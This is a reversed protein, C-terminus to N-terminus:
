RLPPIHTHPRTALLWNSPRKCAFVTEGNSQVKPVQCRTDGCSHTLFRVADQLIDRLYDVSDILGEETMQCLEDYRVLDALSGRIKELVLNKGQETSVDIITRLISHIHSPNGTQDQFEKRCWAWDIKHSPEEKSYIICKMWLDIVAEWSRQIVPAASKRLIKEAEEYSVDCQLAVKSKAVDNLIWKRLRRLGCCTTQNCSQTCFYHPPSEAVLALLKHVNSHNEVSDGHLEENGETRRFSAGEKNQKEAFGRHLVLRSDNGRLGLNILCDLSVFHFRSESSCLTSPDNIRVKTHNRMSALGCHSLFQEDAWLATPVAGLISGDNGDYFFIDPFLLAEAHVLPVSIGFSTAVMRQFFNAYKKKMRLKASRRILLHGQENLLVHLPSAIVEEPADLHVEYPETTATTTAFAPHSVYTRSEGNANENSDSDDDDLLDCVFDYGEDPGMDQRDNGPSFMEDPSDTNNFTIADQDVRTDVYIDPHQTDDGIPEMAPTLMSQSISLLYRCSGKSKHCFVIRQGDGLCRLYKDRNETAVNQKIRVYVAVAITESQTMSTLNLLQRCRLFGSRKNTQLWWLPGPTGGHRAYM